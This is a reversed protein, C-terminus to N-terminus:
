KYCWFAHLIVRILNFPCCWSTELRRKTHEHHHIKTKIIFIKFRKL